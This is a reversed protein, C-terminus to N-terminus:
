YEVSGAQGSSASKFPLHNINVCNSQKLIKQKSADHWIWTCCSQECVCLCVGFSLVKTFRQVLGQCLTLYGSSKSVVWMHLPRKLLDRKWEKWVRDCFGSSSVVSQRCLATLLSCPLWDGGSSMSVHAKKRLSRRVRDFWCLLEAVALAKTQLCALWSNSLVFLFLCLKMVDDHLSSAHYSGKLDWLIKDM